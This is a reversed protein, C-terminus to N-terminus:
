DLLLRVRSFLAALNGEPFPIRFILVQEGNDVLLSDEDTWPGDVLNQTYEALFTIDTADPNRTVTVELYRTGEDEIIGWAPLTATDATLPDGNFAYEFINAIGDEDPDAFLAAEGEPETVNFHELLWSAFPSLEGPTFVTATRGATSIWVTGPRHPDLALGTVDPIRMAPRTVRGWTDGGDDSYYIQRKTDGPRKAWVAIRGDLADIRPYESVGGEDLVTFDGLVQWTDGGDTSRQLSQGNGVPWFAYLIAYLTSPNEPDAVVTGYTGNLSIPSGWTAGGDTSRYFGGFIRYFYRTDGPGRQLNDYGSFTDGSFGTSFVETFNEGGDTSRYVNQQLAVLWEDGTQLSSIVPSWNPLGNAGASGGATSTWSDGLDNSTTFQANNNFYAGLVTWVPNEGQGWDINISNWADNPWLPIRRRLVDGRGSTGGDRLLVGTLDGTPVYVLDPDNPHFKTKFGVAMSIGKSAPTWTAGGDTSVEIGFGTTMLWRNSDNPDQIMGNRGYAVETEGFKRWAPAEADPHIGMGLATWTNGNDTSRSTRQNQYGAIISDDDLVTLMVIDDQGTGLNGTLDTFQFTTHDNWDSASIRHLKRGGSTDRSAVFVDGSVPHRVVRYVMRADLVKTFSGGTNSSFWLGGDGTPPNGGIDHYGGGVWVRNAAGEDVKVVILASDEFTNGGIQTWTNGGDASRYLGTRRTGAWITNHTSDNPDFIMAPGGWRDNARARKARM